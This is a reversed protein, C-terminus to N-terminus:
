ELKIYGKRELWQAQSQTYRWIIDGREEFQFDWPAILVVDGERIWTRKRMRGPIRCIRLYGDNCHVKVMGSGLLQIVVGLVEGERPLKVRRTETTNVNQKKHKPM